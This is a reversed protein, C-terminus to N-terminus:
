LTHEFNGGKAEVCACLRARWQSIASDIVAQDFEDWAQIIRQRLEGVDRVKTKYVKEQMVSWIKYDVPNLDPSNPPWLAPPIFDPTENTLLEVTERARHAPAGDQQFTYYESLERIDPLLKQMLLVDRYYAGNIKVGPEVFHIATRGLSSVGVSVMISKSFTSRTRLLRNGPINKKLTGVAAYLRDNQSNSPSAVTFLKEDTFWIFHVLNAPYRMLLQRSRDLRAQKNVETLETARRKKFCKLHLDIKLIENVSTKSIGVERAIERQSLHTQPRDEQSLALDQVQQINENSRATRPRGSGAQRKCSGTIDIKRLLESLGGLTWTKDPFERLFRKASYNQNQRLYQIVIRDEESFAM